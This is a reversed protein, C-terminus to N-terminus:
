GTHRYLLKGAAALVKGPMHCWVYRNLFDKRGELASRFHTWPYRLYTMETKTAGWRDKFKVLGPNNTDSRGLDFETLRAEKADQIAKWLLLQTGGCKNLRHDSCGYKYVLVDKHSLTLISAVPRGDKSVVRIKLANGLNTALNHFWDKPQAPLGHRRRTILLLDYFEDLLADSRGEKYILGEREARRIKRQVCNKHLCRYIKELSPRLDLKHLFFTDSTGFASNTTSTSHPPRLEIYGWNEFVVKDRVHRLLSYLQEPGDALPACHDAFPLSVLRRGSIWSSVQCFPWGNELPRGPPSTTFAIPVYGYTQQLARLWGRTHFISAQPHLDVFRDWREDVIPDVEYVIM